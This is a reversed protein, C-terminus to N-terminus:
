NSGITMEFAFLTEETPLPVQEVGVIKVEGLGANVLANYLRVPGETTISYGRIVITKMTYQISSATGTVDVTTNEQQDGDENSEGETTSVEAYNSVSAGTSPIMDETDVSAINLDDSVQQYIFKFIDNYRSDIADLTEVMLKNQNRNKQAVSLQTESTNVVRNYEVGALYNEVGGVCSMALTYIFFFVAITQIIDAITLRTSKGILMPHLGEIMNEPKQEMARLIGCVCIGFRGDLEFDIDNKPTTVYIRQMPAGKDNWLGYTDICFLGQERLAACIAIYEEPDSFADGLLMIHPNILNSKQIELQICGVVSDVFNSSAVDSFHLIKTGAPTDKTFQYFVGDEKDNAYIVLKNLADYSYPVMKRVYQIATEPVEISAVKIGKSQFEDVMFDILDREMTVTTYLEGKEYETIYKGWAKKHIVSGTRVKSLSPQNQGKKGLDINLRPERKTATLKEDVFFQVDVGNDYIIHVVKSSFSNVNMTNIISDVMDSMFALRGGHFFRQAMGIVASHTLLMVNNAIRGELLRIEQQTIHVIVEKNSTM